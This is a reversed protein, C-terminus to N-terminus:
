LSGGRYTMRLYSASLDFETVTRMSRVFLILPVVNYIGNVYNLVFVLYISSSLLRIFSAISIFRIPHLSSILTYAIFM